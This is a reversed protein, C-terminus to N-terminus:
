RLGLGRAIIGRLIERAGGRLSFSPVSMVTRALVEGFRRTAPEDPDLAVLARAVDPIAQEFVSGLDKVIAAQLAPDAGDQLLRAVGRSLRRLVILHATLRGVAVAAEDGPARGLLRILEVLLTMSSLFREPGSRENALEATVQKWGEGLRGILNAEPVFANEFVVENFHHAGQLDIIPRITVGPTDRLDILLQSTGEHRQAKPDTRCFLVMVHSEHAYTTWLKTGNVRFGGPVPEARTRVAALDSGSDPESMGICAFCAGAAIRPLYTARQAETGFRLILPGTQRDAIWHAAVPAGAALMEELVVYRELASRERGGYARPWTMGIWGREGMRRSFGADFGTWSGTRAEAPMDKLEDRLFARIEARLQEAELSPPADPFSFREM